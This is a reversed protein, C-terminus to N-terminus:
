VSLFNKVIIIFCYQFYDTRNFFGQIFCKPQCSIDIFKNFGCKTRHAIFIYNSVQKNGTDIINEESQVEVDLAKSTNDIKIVIVLCYNIVSITDMMEFNTELVTRYGKLINFQSCKFILVM